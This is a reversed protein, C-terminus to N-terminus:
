HYHCCCKYPNNREILIQKYKEDHVFETARNNETVALDCMEETQNIVYQLALGNQKIAIECIEPTQYEKEIFQLALGNQTVAIKHDYENVYSIHQLAMGDKELIHDRWFQDDINKFEEIKTIIIKDTRFSDEEIYVIADDPIKIIAKENADNKWHLYCKSEEYFEFGGILYRDGGYSGYSYDLLRLNTAVNLGKTIYHDDSRRDSLFKYFPLEHFIDNFTTGSIKACNAVTIQPMIIPKYSSVHYTIISTHSTNDTDFKKNTKSILYDYETFM